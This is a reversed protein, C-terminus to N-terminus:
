KIGKFSSLGELVNNREKLVVEEKSALEECEEFFFIIAVVILMFIERAVRERPARKTAAFGIARRSTVCHSPLDGNNSKTSNISVDYWVPEWAIEIKRIKLESILVPSFV